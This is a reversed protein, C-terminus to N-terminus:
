LDLGHRSQNSHMSTKVRSSAKSSAIGSLKELNHEAGLSDPLQVAIVRVPSVEDESNVLDMQQLDPEAERM